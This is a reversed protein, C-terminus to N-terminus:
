AAKTDQEAMHCLLSCEIDPEVEDAQLNPDLEDLFARVKGPLEVLRVGLRRSLQAIRAFADPFHRRVRNWYAPSTGKACPICNNNRFGLLYLAPLAIGARELMGLCDAKKLGAAILPTELRVEFNQERFRKARGQEEVTYGFVHIDDPRQFLFRPVKKMPGTCSAGTPGSIYRKHEWVEFPNAFEDSRLVIIDQNFWRACDAMFRANDPHEQGPDTYAIVVEHTGRYKALALKTAVASAAGCSFWCVVRPTNM